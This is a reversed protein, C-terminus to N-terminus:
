TNKLEGILEKVKNERNMLDQVLALGMESDKLAEAASQEVTNAEKHHRTYLVSPSSSVGSCYVM